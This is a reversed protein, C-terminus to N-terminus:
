INENSKKREKEEREKLTKKAHELLTKTMEEKTFGCEDLFAEEPSIPERTMDKIYSYLISGVIIFLLFAWWPIGLANIIAMWIANVVYIM